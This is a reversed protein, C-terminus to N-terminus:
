SNLYIKLNYLGNYNNGTKRISITSGVLWRIELREYTTEGAISSIRSICAGSNARSKSLDFSASPGDIVSNKVSIRTQGTLVSMPINVWDTNILTVNLNLFNAEFISDVYGKNVVDTAIVPSGHSSIIGGSM